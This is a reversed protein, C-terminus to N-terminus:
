RLYRTQKCKMGDWQITDWRENWKINNEDWGDEDMWDHWEYLRM